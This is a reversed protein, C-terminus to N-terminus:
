LPGNKWPGSIALTHGEESPDGGGFINVFLWEGNPSFCAGAFEADSILNLAFEFPKGGPELGIVRNVNAIGPALPHTDADDSSADDECLIIGGRPTFNLNDPSDLQNRGTSEYVLELFGGSASPAYRWVQGYGELYGDTNPTDGSKVDGGSTSTFFISGNGYWCGELRNFIAGGKALGQATTSQAGGELDPDPDDIVVWEVAFRSGRGQGERTDYNIAGRVKLMELVGGAALAQPDNPRYRYLGNPNNSLDETEYVFGTAPDVAVAEHSFRGM